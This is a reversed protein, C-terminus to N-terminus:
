TKSPARWDFQDRTAVLNFDIRYSHDKGCVSCVGVFTKGLRVIERPPADTVVIKGEYCCPYICPATLKYILYSNKNDDLSMFRGRGVFSNEKLTRPKKYYLEMEDFYPQLFYCFIATLLAPLFLAIGFSPHSLMFFLSAWVLFVVIIGFFGLLYGRWARNRLHQKSIRRKGESDVKLQVWHPLAGTGGNKENEIEEVEKPSAEYTEEGDKRRILVTHPSYEKKPTKLHKSIRHLYPSPPISIVFLNVGRIKIKDCHLDPLKPDCYVNVKELIKTRSPVTNGVDLLTRTGDAKLEDGVGIILYGTEEATGVNGNTLAIVDKVLEAWQQLKDEKWKPKDASTIPEPEYFKYLKIKFDLKASETPQSVLKRLSSSDM